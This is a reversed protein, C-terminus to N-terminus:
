KTKSRKDKSLAVLEGAQRRRYARPSHGFHKKFRLSFYFPSAFGCQTSIETFSLLTHEILERARRMRQSEIFNLPSIGMQERFLEAFRSRSLGCRRALGDLTFREEPQLSLLNVVKHIRADRRTEAQRPNQSDCLIIARELANVALEEHRRGDGHAAADMRRFEARVEARISEDLHLLMMGPAFEPWELWNLCDPRPLFHTWINKWYGCREDLGYEHPTGPRILVVDGVKAALSRGSSKFYSGGGDNYILIWEDVGGPRRAVIPRRNNQGGTVLLRTPPTIRLPTPKPMAQFARLQKPILNCWGASTIDKESEASNWDKDEPPM